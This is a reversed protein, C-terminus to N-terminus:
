VYPKSHTVYRYHYVPIDIRTEKKLVGSKKVADAWDKDEFNSKDPFAIDRVLDNRMPTIHNPYRLYIEEGNRFQAEYPNGLAIYWKKFHGGNTTMIGNIAMVDCKSEAARMIAEIAGPLVRDDDDIFWQYLSTVRKMLANRKAGTTVKGRPTPDVLINLLDSCNAEASQRTIEAILSQLLAAREPLTPILVDLIM